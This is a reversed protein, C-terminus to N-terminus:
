PHWELAQTDPPTDGAGSASAQRHSNGPWFGTWCRLVRCSLRAMWAAASSAPISFRMELCERRWAKGGVQQLLLDVDAQDLDQEPVLLSSVVASYTWSAM